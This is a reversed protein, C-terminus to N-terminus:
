NLFPIFIEEARALNLDSSSTGPNKRRNPLPHILPTSPSHKPM